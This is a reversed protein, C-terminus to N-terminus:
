LTTLRMLPKLIMKQFLYPYATDKLVATSQFLNGVTFYSLRTNKGTIVKTKNSNAM